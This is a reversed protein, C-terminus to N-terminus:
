LRWMAVMSSDLPSKILSRHRENVARVSIFFGSSGSDWGWPSRPHTQPGPQCHLKNLSGGISDSTCAPRLVAARAGARTGQAQWNRPM